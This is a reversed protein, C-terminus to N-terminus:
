LSRIPLCTRTGAVSRVTGILTIDTYRRVISQDSDEYIEVRNCTSLVMAEEVGDRRRLASALMGPEHLLAEIERGILDERRWGLMALAAGLQAQGDLLRQGQEGQAAERENVKEAIDQM